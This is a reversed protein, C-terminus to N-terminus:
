ENAVKKKTTRRKRKVPNLLAEFEEFALSSIFERGACYFLTVAGDADCVFNSYWVVNSRLVKLISRQKQVATTGDDGKVGRGFIVPIALEDVKKGSKKM